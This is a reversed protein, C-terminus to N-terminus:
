QQCDSQYRSVASEFDDQTSRLRSFESSCDDSGRSASICNTYRKLTDAVDQIVSNYNDVSSSCEEAGDGQVVVTGNTAHLNEAGVLSIGDAVSAMLVVMIARNELFARLM